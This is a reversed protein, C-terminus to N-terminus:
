QAPSDTRAPQRPRDAGGRPLPLGARVWQTIEDAGLKRAVLHEDSVQINGKSITVHRQVVLVQPLAPQGPVDRFIYNVAALNLWNGGSTLQDFSGFNNLWSLGTTPDWDLAAGVITATVNRERGERRFDTKMTEVTEPFGPVDAAHCFSAGIFVLLM